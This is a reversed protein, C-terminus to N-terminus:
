FFLIKDIICFRDIVGELTGDEQLVFLKSKNKVTMEFIVELLTADKGISETDRVYMDKVRLDKKIKFYKEFPDIHKVFSITNLQKFFDPMGYEFIDLCSIEGRFTGKDDLVPLIDLKNLHMKRAAEEIQDELGITCIAPRSLDRALIEKPSNVRSDRFIDLVENMDLSGPRVHGAEEANKVARIIAAMVQLVIYPEASSSLLLFVFRVPQGDLSAFDMGNNFVAMAMSPEGWGAVRAHPFALGNGIGTTQMREREVIARYADEKGVKRASGPSVEYIRDLLKRIVVDKPLAASEEIILEKKLIKKLDVM